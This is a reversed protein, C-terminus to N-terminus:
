VEFGNERLIVDLIIVDYNEDQRPTFGAGMPQSITVFSEEQFGKKLFRYVRREDKCYPYAYGPQHNLIFIHLSSDFARPTFFARRTTILSSVCHRNYPHDTRTNGSPSAHPFNIPNYPPTFM